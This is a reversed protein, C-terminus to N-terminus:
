TLMKPFRNTYRNSEKRKQLYEFVEPNDWKRTLKITELTLIKKFIKVFALPGFYLSHCSKGTEEIYIKGVEEGM